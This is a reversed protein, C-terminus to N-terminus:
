GNGYAPALALALQAPSLAAYSALPSADRQPLTAAITIAAAALVFVPQVIRKVLPSERM